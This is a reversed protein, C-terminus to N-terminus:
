GIIATFVRLTLVIVAWAGLFGVWTPLWGFPGRRFSRWARAVRGGTEPAPLKISPVAIVPGGEPREIAEGDREHSVDIGEATIETIGLRYVRRTKGYDARTSEGDIRGTFTGAVHAGFVYSPDTPLDFRGDVSVVVEDPTIGDAPVGPEGDIALETFKITYDIGTKGNWMRAASRSSVEGVFSGTVRQGYAFGPDGETTIYGDAKVAYETDVVTGSVATDPSATTGALETSQTM